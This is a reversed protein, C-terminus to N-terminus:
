LGSIQRVFRRPKQAYASQLSVAYKEKREETDAYVRSVDRIISARLPIAGVPPLPVGHERDM